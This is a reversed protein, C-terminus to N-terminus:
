SAIWRALFWDEEARSKCHYVHRIMERITEGNFGAVEEGQALDIDGIDLDPPM